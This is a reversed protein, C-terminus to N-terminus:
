PCLHAERLSRLLDLLSPAVLDVQDRLTSLLGPASERAAQEALVICGFGARRAGLLEDSSGDGVYWCREARVGLRDLIARYADPHPKCVGIEHSLAVADVLGALPGVSWARLELAHTNSLVGIAIGQARIATLVEATSQPPSLLAERRTLDWDAEILAVHDASVARGSRRAFGAIWAVELALGNPGSSVRGAELEPEFREWDADVEGPDLGLLDALWDNRDGGGPYTGPHILTYLLDFVIADPRFVVRRPHCPIV